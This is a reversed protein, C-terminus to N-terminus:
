SYTQPDMLQFDYGMHCLQIAAGVKFVAHATALFAKYAAATGSELRENMLFSYATESVTHMASTSFRNEKLIKGSIHEDMDDFGRTGLFSAYPASCYKEWDKDWLYAVAMGLFGACALTYEPYSNFNSVADTYYSPAYRMWADDIDPTDLLAGKLLGESTCVRVLHNILREQYDM